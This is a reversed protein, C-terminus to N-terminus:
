RTDFRRVWELAEDADWWGTSWGGEMRLEKLADNVQRYATLKERRNRDGLGPAVGARMLCGSRLTIVSIPAPLDGRLRDVGGVRDCLEQDLLTIWNVGKISQVVHERIMGLDNCDLGEYRNCWARLQLNRREPGTGEDYQVGYGAHGSRFPLVDAITQVLTVLADPDDRSYSAPLHFQFYGAERDLMAPAIFFRFGGRGVEDRSRGATLELGFEMREAPKRSFWTPFAQLVTPTIPAFQTMRETKYWRIAPRLRAIVLDYAEILADENGAIGTLYFTIDFAVLANVEDGERYVLEDVTTM